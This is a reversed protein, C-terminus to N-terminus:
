DNLTTRKVVGIQPFLRLPPIAIFVVKSETAIAKVIASITIFARTCPASAVM